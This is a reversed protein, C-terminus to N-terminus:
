LLIIQRKNSTNEATKTTIKLELIQRKRRDELGGCIWYEFKEIGPFGQLAACKFLRMNEWRM